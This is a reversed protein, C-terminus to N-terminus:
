PKAGALAAKTLATISAKAGERDQHHGGAKTPEVEGLLKAAGNRGGGGPHRELGELGGPIGPGNIQYGGPVEVFEGDIADRGVGSGEDGNLFEERLQEPTKTKFTRYDSTWRDDNLWAAAGKAYGDRVEDSKTYDRLGLLIEAPSARAIATRWAIRAKAKSGRRQRPYISWLEEFDTDSPLPPKPPKKRKDIDEIDDIYEIDSYLSTAGCLEIFDNSLLVPLAKGITQSRLGLARGIFSSDHTL